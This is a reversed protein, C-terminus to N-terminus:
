DKYLMFSSFFAFNNIYFVMDKVDFFKLLKKLGDFIINNYNHHLRNKIISPLFKWIFTGLFGERYEWLIMFVVIRNYSTIEKRRKSPACPKWSHCFMVMLCTYPLYLLRRAASALICKEQNQLRRNQHIIDSTGLM